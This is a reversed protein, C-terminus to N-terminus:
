PNSLHTSTAEQWKNEPKYEVEQSLHYRHTGM